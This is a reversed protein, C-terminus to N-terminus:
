TPPLRGKKWVCVEAAAAETQPLALTCITAAHVGCITCPWYFPAPHHQAELCLLARHEAAPSALTADSRQLLAVKRVAAIREVAQKLMACVAGRVMAAVQQPPLRRGALPLLAALSGMTAVRLWSGVDGRCSWVGRAKGSLM